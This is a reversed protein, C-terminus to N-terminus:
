GREPSYIGEVVSAFDGCAVQAAQRASRSDQGAAVHAAYAGAYVRALALEIQSNDM